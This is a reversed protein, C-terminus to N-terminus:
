RPRLRRWAAVLDIPRPGLWRYRIALLRLACATTVAGLEAPWPPLALGRLLAVYVVAAALAASEYLEGPGVISPREGSLLDRIVSGGVATIVGLFIAAVAPLGAALAKELGMVVWLGLLVADVLALVRGFRAVLSGLLLALLSAAGVVILYRADKLAAPPGQGVLVDRLIGGGVGTAISLALVGLADAGKRLGHLAGSLAGTVVAALEVYVPLTLM